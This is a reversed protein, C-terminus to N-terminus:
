TKTKKLKKEVYWLVSGLRNRARNLPMNAESAEQYIEKDKKSEEQYIEKEKKSEEQNMKKEKKNELDRKSSAIITGRLATAEEANKGSIRNEAQLAEDYSLFVDCLGDADRLKENSKGFGTDVRSDFVDTAARWKSDDPARFSGLNRYFWIGLRTGKSLDLPDVNSLMVAYDTYCFECCSWGLHWKQKGVVGIRPLNRLLSTELTELHSGAQGHDSKAIRLGARVSQHPCIRWKRRELEETVGSQYKGAASFPGNPGPYEWGRFRYCGSLLLEGNVIRAELTQHVETSYRLKITDDRAFESLPIIGSSSSSGSPTAYLRPRLALQVHYSRIVYNHYSCVAEGTGRSKCTERYWDKINTCNRPTDKPRHPHYAACSHCLFYDQQHQQKNRIDGKQSQIFRNIGGDRELLQLFRLRVAKDMGTRSWTGQRLTSAYLARCTLTLAAVSEPPLHGLIQVLVPTPLSLLPSASFGVHPPAIAMRHLMEEATLKRTSPLAM